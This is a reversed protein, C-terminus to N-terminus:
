RSRSPPQIVSRHHFGLAIADYMNQWYREKWKRNQTLHVKLAPLRSCLTEALARKGAWGDGVVSRRVAKASYSAFKMHRNKALRGLLKGLAPLGALADLPRKPIDEVVITRLHHARIRATVFGRVQGLRRSVLTHRLDLVGYDVLRKGDLIAWGLERLGPDIALLTDTKKDTPAM